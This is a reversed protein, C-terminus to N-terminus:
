PRISNGREFAERQTEYIAPLSPNGVGTRFGSKVPPFDTGRAASGLPTTLSDDITKLYSDLKWTPIVTVGMEQAAAILIGENKLQDQEQRNMDSLDQMGLGATASLETREGEVLFRVSNDLGIVRDGVVQTEVVEAGAAEIQSKVAENDPEGDGDVDINGVLAIKVKRGPAWFPSYVKDGKIIPTGVGSREVVRADAMHSNRIRTVRITAKVEADEPRTADGDLVGFTVGPRLQDAAGLDIMVVDGGSRGQVSTIEGQFNEFRDSRLRNLEQRQSEITATLQAVKAKHQSEMADKANNLANLDRNKKTLEDVTKEMELNKQKREEAFQQQADALDKAAAEAADEAVKQAAHANAVGQDRDAEAKTVAQRADALVKSQSRLSNVLYDPLKPYNQDQPAVEQGFYTMDKQYQALITEMEPNDAVSRALEDREAETAGGFGLMAKMLDAQDRLTRLENQTSSLQTKADTATGAQTDGWMWLFVNLAFSLVLVVLAAILSGRIVSDDRAVM